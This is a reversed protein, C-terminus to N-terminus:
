GWLRQVRHAISVSVELLDVLTRELALHNRDVGVLQLFVGLLIPNGVNEQQSLNWFITINFGLGLPNNHTVMTYRKIERSIQKEVIQM